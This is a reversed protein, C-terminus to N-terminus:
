GIRGRLMQGTRAAARGGGQGKAGGVHARGAWSLERQQGERRRQGMCAAAGDEVRGQAGRGAWQAGCGKSGGGRARRLLAGHACGGRGGRQGQACEGRARGAWSLERRLGERRRQGTCAAARGMARRQGEGGEGPERKDCLRRGTRAPM